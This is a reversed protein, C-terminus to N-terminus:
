NEVLFVHHPTQILLGRDHAHLHHHASLPIDVATNKESDTYVLRPVMQSQLHGKELLLGHNTAFYLTDQRQAPTTYFAPCEQLLLPSQAPAYSTSKYRTQGQYRTHLFLDAERGNHNFVVFMEQISEGDDLLLDYEHWAGVATRVFFTYRGFSRYVGAIMDNYPSGWLRTQNPYATGVVEEILLGDRVSAQMIYGNALRYLHNPTTAFVATNQFTGTELMGIRTPDLGSVDLVLLQTREPPNVVLHGAFYAFNYGPQGVFLPLESVQGGLGAYI